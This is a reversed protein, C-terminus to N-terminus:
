QTSYAVNGGYYNPVNGTIITEAIPVSASIIEREDLLFARYHMRVYIDLCISHRVQNIGADDFHEKLECDVVSIPVITVPIMPGVSSLLYYNTLSGLPIYLKAPYDNNLANQVEIMLQSKILNIKATDAEIASIGDSSVTKFFNEFENTQIIKVICKNVLDTFATNSYNSTQAVFSPEARKLLIHLAFSLALIVCLLLIFINVARIRKKQIGLRMLRVEGAIIHM